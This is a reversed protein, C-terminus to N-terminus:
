YVRCDDLDDLIERAQVRKLARGQILIDHLCQEVPLDTDIRIHPRPPTFPEYHALMAELHILRADSTGPTTERQSLRQRITDVSCACEVFVLGADRDRALDMAAERWQHSSFTADVVVSQGRKLEDHALNLLKAYVRNKLVPHYKGSQFPAVGDSPFDPDQKRIIDSQFLRIDLAQAVMRALTSKGSAPLGLFVWLVPRGFLMAYERAQSLYSNINALLAAHGGPAAQNLSLCAVKLRVLARYAAHFDLLAHIEPDHTARAYASLLRSAIEPHGLHELDMVLFALDLAVDGYRFRQNFEICDIIQIGHHFYVHEARLDGHGDRIKGHDIRNRFLNHHTNWFARCVQRVFEWHAPNMHESVFPATQTFNEEMNTRILDPEGFADIDASTEAQDHFVALVRGLASIDEDTVHGDELRAALSSEDPLQAMKVAYEIIRGNGHLALNGNEDQRIGVVGQYVGSTLRQNLVVERECFLKRDSLRRFDLFGLNRPKKLKYVWEGTLFVTSIHTQRIELRNIPHPYFAPDAMALCVSDFGIEPEVSTEPPQQKNMNINGLIHDFVTKLSREKNQLSTKKCIVDRDTEAVPSALQIEPNTAAPVFTELFVQRNNRECM